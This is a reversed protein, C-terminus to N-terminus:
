ESVLNPNPKGLYLLIIVFEAHYIEGETTFDSLTLGPGDHHARHQTGQISRGGTHEM